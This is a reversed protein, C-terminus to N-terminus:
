AAQLEAGCFRCKVAALKVDEACIPCPRTGATSGLDPAHIPASVPAPQEGAFLSEKVAAAFQDAEQKQSFTGISTRREGGATVITVSPNGIFLFIALGILVLGIVAFGSGVGIGLVGLLGLGVAASVNRNVEARVSTVHRIAFNEESGGGFWGKRINFCIRDSFVRGFGNEFLLMGAM